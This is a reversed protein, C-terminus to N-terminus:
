LRFASVMTVVSTDIQSQCHLLMVHGPHPFNLIHCQNQPPVFFSTDSTVHTVHQAPSQLPDAVAFQELLWQPYNHCDVENCSRRQHQNKRCVLRRGCGSTGFSNPSTDWIGWVLHLVYNIQMPLDVIYTSLSKNYSPHM